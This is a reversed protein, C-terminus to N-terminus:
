NPLAFAIPLLINLQDPLESPIIPMPEARRITALAEQDLITRGSTSTVRVEAVTGDRRLRFVVHVTGGIGGRRAEAPYRQFRAIHRQLTQQFRLAQEPSPRQPTAPRPSYPVPPPTPEDFTASAFAQSDRPQTTEAPEDSRQSATQSGTVESPDDAALPYPTPTESPLLRVQVTAGADRAALRSPLRHLWYVGGALLVVAIASVIVIRLIEGSPDAALPREHDGKESM